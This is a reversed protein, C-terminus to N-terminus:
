RKRTGFLDYMSLGYCTSRLIALWSALERHTVLPFRADHEMRQILLLVFHHHSFQVLGVFDFELSELGPASTEGGGTTCVLTGNNQALVAEVDAHTFGRGLCREMFDPRPEGVQGPYPLKAGCRQVRVCVRVCVCVCVCACVCVCMCVYM